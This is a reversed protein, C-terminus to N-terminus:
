FQPLLFFLPTFVQEVSFATRLAHFVLQLFSAAIQTFFLFPFSLSPFLQKPSIVGFLSPSVEFRTTLLVFSALIGEDAPTGSLTIQKSQIEPKSRYSRYDVLKFDNLSFFM